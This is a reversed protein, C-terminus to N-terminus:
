LRLGADNQKWGNGIDLTHTLENQTYGVIIPRATGNKWCLLPFQKQLHLIHRRLSCLHRPSSLRASRLVYDGAFSFLEKTAHNILKIDAPLARHSSFILHEPLPHLPYRMFSSITRM